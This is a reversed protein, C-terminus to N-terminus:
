GCDVRSGGEAKGLRSSFLISKCNGVMWMKMALLHPSLPFLSLSNEQAGFDSCMTVVAIFNLRKSRPLFAIVLGSLM